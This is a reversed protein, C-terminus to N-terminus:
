GIQFTPDPDPCFDDAHLVPVLMQVTYTPLTLNIFDFSVTIKLFITERMFM